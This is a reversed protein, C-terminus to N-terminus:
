RCESGLEGNMLEALLSTYMRAGEPNLHATDSFYRNEFLFYEDGAVRFESNSQSVTVMAQNKGPRGREGQRLYYPMVVIKFRYRDALAKLERFSASRPAPKRYEVVSENEGALHFNPPLRHDPFRSQSEIFYYGRAHAMKAVEDEAHHYSAVPGGLNRSRLLFLSADRLLLRFPFLGNM